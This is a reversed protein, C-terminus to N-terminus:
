RPSVEKIILKYVPLVNIRIFNTGYQQQRESIDFMSLGGPNEHFKSCPM